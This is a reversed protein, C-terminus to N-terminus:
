KSFLGGLHAQRISHGFKYFFALQYRYANYGEWYRLEFSRGKHDPGAPWMEAHLVGKTGFACGFIMLSSVRYIKNLKLGEIALHKEFDELETPDHPHALIINMEKGDAIKALYRALNRKLSQYNRRRVFGLQDFKGMNDDETSHIKMGGAASLNLDCLFSVIQRKLGKEMDKLRGWAKFGHMHEVMYCMARGGDHFRKLEDRLESACKVHGGNILEAGRLFTTGMGQQVCLYKVREREQPTLAKMAGNYANVLGRSGNRPCGILLVEKAESLAERLKELVVESGPAATGISDYSQLRLANWFKVRDAEKLYSVVGNTEIVAKFPIALKKFGPSEKWKEGLLTGDISVMRVNRSTCLPFNPTNQWDIQERMSEIKEKALTKNFALDRLRAFAKHPVNTHIHLKGLILHGGEDAKGLNIAVPVISDGLDKVKDYLLKKAEDETTTRSSFELVCETCYKFNLCNCEGGHHKTDGGIAETVLDHADTGTCLYDGYQLTGTLGRVFGELIYVLGQAGSDVVNREKLVKRGEVILQDPTKQLSRQSAELWASM